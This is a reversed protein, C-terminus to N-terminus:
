ENSLTNLIFAYISTLIKIKDAHYPRICRVAEDFTMWKVEGIESQDFGFNLDINDFTNKNISFYYIHKYFINNTGVLSEEIPNIKDLIKYQNKKIGTEEEFERQACEINHEDMNDRRGKPFGWECRDWKPIIKSVYHDLGLPIALEKYNRHNKLIDFKLKAECYEHSYKGEYVRNLTDTKTEGDKQSFTYLLSDYDHNKILSIEEKTMEKFYKAITKVDSVDYKGRVFEVFGLSFKRSVMLFMIKNRYFSIKKLTEENKINITSNFINYKPKKQLDSLNKEILCIKNKYIKSNIMVKSKNNTSFKECIYETESPCGAIKINIIGYSIIPTPYNKISCDITQDKSIETSM